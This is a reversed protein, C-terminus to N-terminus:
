DDFDIVQVMYLKVVLISLAIPLSLIVQNWWLKGSATLLDPWICICVYSVAAWWMGLIGSETGNIGAYEERSFTTKQDGRLTEDLLVLRQYNHSIMHCAIFHQACEETIFCLHFTTPSKTLDNHSIFYVNFTVASNRLQM